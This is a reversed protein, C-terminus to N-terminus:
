SYPKLQPKIQLSEKEKKIYEIILDQILPNSYKSSNVFLFESINQQTAILTNIRIEDQKSLKKNVTNLPTHENVALKPYPSISYDKHSPNPLKLM